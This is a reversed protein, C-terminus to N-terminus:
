SVVSLAWPKCQATAGATELLAAAAPHGAAHCRTQLATIVSQAQDRHGAARLAAFGDVVIHVLDAPM